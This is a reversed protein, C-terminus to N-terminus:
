PTEKTPERRRRPREFARTFKWHQAGNKDDYCYAVITLGCYHEFESGDFWEGDPFDKCKPCRGIFVTAMERPLRRAVSM